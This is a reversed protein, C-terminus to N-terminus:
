DALLDLLTANDLHSFYLDAEIDKLATALAQRQYPLGVLKEALESSDKQGFYDGYFVLNSIHGKTVEIRADIIGVAPYRRRRQISYAPAEGYIWEENGYIETVLQAIAADDEASLHLEKAAIARLDNVDFLRKLLEDRFAETSLGQYEAALYPRLNTVHSRVSKTGKSEIKDKAVRLAQPLVDLDVDLMLTGHSFLKGRKKYMANGSFKKGEILLDNRGSVEAGTAGMEHIAKLIPQTFEAFNGFDERGAKTVFSFSVNGLDDYVAGGGSLRRTVTIGRERVFRQDIEEIANQNRGIIICPEQIYFLVLPEEFDKELLYQETALNVRIDRSSMAYYLM